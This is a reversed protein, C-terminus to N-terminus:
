KWGMAKEISKHASLLHKIVDDAREIGMKSVSGYHMEICEFLINKIAEEDPSHRLDSKAYLDELIIIKKDFYEVIQEMSEEGRRIAKLHERSRTLDLDGEELIQQCEDLLRVVHYAFKTDFGYKAILPIRKSRHGGSEIKNILMLMKVRTDSDIGKSKMLDLTDQLPLDYPISYDDCLDVFDKVFKNKMKHLQSFAYGKFKHWVRKTLFTKRNERVHNGISTSHLVCRTPVFLADVMNPNNEMCLQFFKVINYIVVDYETGRAKDMIHHQQFQKFGAPAGGFGYLAGTNFPFLIEKPPMGFGYVDMDSNDDSVGYAVSGMVVEYHVNNRLFSPADILLGDSYLRDFTSSM